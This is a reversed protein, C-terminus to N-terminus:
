SCQLVDLIHKLVKRYFFSFLPLTEIFSHNAVFIKGVNKRCFFQRNHAQSHKKACSHHLRFSNSQLVNCSLARGHLYRRSDKRTAGPYLLKVLFVSSADTKPLRVLAKSSAQLAATRLRDMGAQGPVDGGFAMFM